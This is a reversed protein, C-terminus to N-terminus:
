QCTVLVAKEFEGVGKRCPDSGGETRWRQAWQQTTEGDDDFAPSPRQPLDQPQRPRHEEQHEDRHGLGAGAVDQEAPRLAQAFERAVLVELGLALNILAIDTEALEQDVLHPLRGLDEQFIGGDKECIDVGTKNVTLRTVRSGQLKSRQFVRSHREDRPRVQGQGRPRSGARGQRAKGFAISVDKTPYSDVIGEEFSKRKDVHADVVEVDALEADDEGADDDAAAKSNGDVDRVDVEVELGVDLLVAQARLLVAQNRGQEGDHEHGGAHEPKSPGGLRVDM